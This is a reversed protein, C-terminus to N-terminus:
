EFFGLIQSFGRLLHEKAYLQMVLQPIDDNVAEVLRGQQLCYSAYPIFPVEKEDMQVVLSSDEDSTFFHPRGLYNGLLVVESSSIKCLDETSKGSSKILDHHISAVDILYRISTKIKISRAHSESLLEKFPDALHRSTLYEKVSSHALHVERGHISSVTILLSSCQTIVDMLEFLRNEQKFGPKEDLRVAIADIMGSVLPPRKAWLVYQLLFLAERYCNSSQLTDLTRAYIGQLTTPLTSLAKMLRARDM